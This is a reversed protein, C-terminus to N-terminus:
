GIRAGVLAGAAFGSGAPLNYTVVKMVRKYLEDFDGATVKGDKDFDFVGMIKGEIKEYDLEVYGLFSLLQLSGFALGVGVFAAKATKKAAFGSCVGMIFGLSVQAPLGSEVMENIKKKIDAAYSPEEVPKPETQVTGEVAQNIGDRFDTLTDKLDSMFTKAKEQDKKLGGPGKGIKADKQEGDSKGGFFRIGFLGNSKKADDDDSGKRDGAARVAADAGQPLIFPALLGIAATSAVSTGVVRVASSSVSAVSAVSSVSFTMGLTALASWSSAMLRPQRSRSASNVEVHCADKLTSRSVTGHFMPSSTTKSLKLSQGTKLCSRTMARAPGNGAVM